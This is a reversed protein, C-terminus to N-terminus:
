LGERHRIRGNHTRKHAYPETKYFVESIKRFIRLYAVHQGSAKKGKREM